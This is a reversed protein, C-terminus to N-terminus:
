RSCPAQRAGDRACHKDHPGHILERTGTVAELSSTVLRIWPRRGGRLYPAWGIPERGGKPGAADM